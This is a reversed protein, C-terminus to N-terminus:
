TLNGYILLSENLRVDKLSWTSTSPWTYNELIQDLFTEFTLGAKLKDVDGSGLSQYIGGWAGGTGAVGLAGLVAGAFAIKTIVNLTFCSCSTGNELAPAADVVVADLLAGVNDYINGNIVVQNAADVIPNMAVDAMDAAGNGANIANAAATAAARGRLVWGGAVSFGACAVTFISLAITTWQMAAQFDLAKKDLNYNIVFKSFNPLETANPDDPDANQVNLIHLNDTRKQLVVFLNQTMDITIIQNGPM